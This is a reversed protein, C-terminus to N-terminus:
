VCQQAEGPHEPLNYKVWLHRASGGEAREETLMHHLSRRQYPRLQLTLPPAPPPTCTLMRHLSRRQYLRLQM